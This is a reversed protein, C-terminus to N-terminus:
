DMLRSKEVIKKSDSINNYVMHHYFMNGQARDYDVIGIHIHYYM